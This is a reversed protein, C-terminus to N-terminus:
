ERRTVKLMKANDNCSKNDKSNYGRKICKTLIKLQKKWKEIKTEQIRKVINIIEYIAFCIVFIVLILKLLNNFNIIEDILFITMCILLVIQGILEIKNRKNENSM